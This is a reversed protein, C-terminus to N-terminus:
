PGVKDWPRASWGTARRILPLRWARPLAYIAKLAGTFRKPFHVEFANSRLGREIREAAEQASIMFPKPFDNDDQAPTEVFGPCIVQVCVGHRKLEIQLCEAMNILGAKTAGYASSTPMGGYGTASSVLALRGKRAAVMAPILAELWRGTGVLNVACSKELREADFRPADVPLYVGANLVALAVFGSERRLTGAADRVDSPCTADGPLPIVRGSGGAKEAQDALDQLADARRAFAGVTWGARVLRLTLEAGIGSSAGTVLACGDQPSLNQTM